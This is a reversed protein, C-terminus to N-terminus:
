RFPVKNENVADIQMLKEIWECILPFKEATLVTEGILEGVVRFWILVNAAIDLYGMRQGTFYQKGKLEDEMIKLQQQAEEIAEEKEKGAMHRLKAVTPFLKEDIFKAWFRAKAREYPHQPLFPHTEWTEDLYELIVLSEAVPKQNHVLVPVKKHIPNYKLLSPSKNSLDEEIYEYPIGKLKLALEVRRSYPSAWMGFLKVEDGM